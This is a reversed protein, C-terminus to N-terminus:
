GYDGPRLNRRRHGDKGRYVQCRGGYRLKRYHRSDHGRYLHFRDDHRIEVKNDADAPTVTYPASLSAGQRIDATYLGATGSATLESLTMGTALKDTVTVYVYFVNTHGAATLKIGAKGLANATITVKTGDQAVTIASTKDTDKIKVAEVTIAAATDSPTLTLEVQKGREVSVAFPSDSTGAGTVSDITIAYTDKNDKKTCATLALAFVLVLVLLVVTLIKKNM